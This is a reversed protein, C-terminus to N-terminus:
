LETNQYIVLVNGYFTNLHKIDSAMCGCGLVLKCECSVNWSINKRMGWIVYVDGEGFNSEKVTGQCLVIAPLKSSWSSMMLHFCKGRLQGNTRPIWQDLHIGRVFALSTFSQHKRQDADSYVISYLITLSTIQSAITGMIIDNYHYRHETLLWAAVMSM